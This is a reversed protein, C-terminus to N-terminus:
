AGERHSTLSDLIRRGPKGIPSTPQKPKEEPKASPLDDATGAKGASPPLVAEPEEQQSMLTKRVTSSSIVAREEATALLIPSKEAPVPLGCTGCALVGAVRVLDGMCQSCYPLPPTGPQIESFTSETDSM